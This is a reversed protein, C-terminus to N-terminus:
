WHRRPASDLYSGGYSGYSGYSNYNNFMPGGIYNGGYTMNHLLQKNNPYGKGFNTAFAANAGNALIQGAMGTMHAGVSGSNDQTNTSIVRAVRGDPGVIMQESTQRNVFAGNCGTLVTLCAVLMISVFINRNMTEEWVPM